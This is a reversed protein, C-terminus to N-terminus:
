TVVRIGWRNIGHGNIANLLTKPRIGLAVAAKSISTFEAGDTVSIVRKSIPTSKGFQPNLEGVKSKAINARWSEPLSAGHLHHKEGKVAESKKRCTETSLKKGFNPHKGGAVAARLKERTKMSMVIGSSGEGGDTLNVLPGNRLNRRGILSILLREVYFADEECDCSVVVRSIFGGAKRVIANWFRGRKTAISARDRLGKRVTGKGVYFVDGTDPRIHIYVFFKM